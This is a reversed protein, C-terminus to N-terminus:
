SECHTENRTENEGPLPQDPYSYLTVGLSAGVAAVRQLLSNSLSQAWPEDGCGYGINFERLTLSQWIQQTPKDLQEIISLMAAITSEPDEFAEGTEFSAIWCDEETQALHLQFLGKVELMTALPSLDVASVLELDTNLYRTQVILRVL